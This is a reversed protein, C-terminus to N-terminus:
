NIVIKKLFVKENQSIELFYFGKGINIEIAGSGGYFSYESEYVVEGISSFL